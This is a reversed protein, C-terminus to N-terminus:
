GDPRAQAPSGDSRRPGERVSYGGTARRRGPAAAAAARAVGPRTIDCRHFRVLRVRDLAVPLLHPLALPGPLDGVGPLGVEIVRRRLAVDELHKRIGGALRVDAM